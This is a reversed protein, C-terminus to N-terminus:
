EEPELTAPRQDTMATPALRARHGRRLGPAEGSKELAMAATVLAVHSFAQPFNGVLRKKGVDYQEALLGLDNRVALVSEFLAQADDHRGLLVLCDVLWLTCMLFSGEGGSLGDLARDTKYRHLFGDVLLDKEIAEITRRMREDTADIFGVLPLILLSADLDPCDYARMFRGLADDYGRTLVEGRIEARVARWRDLPGVRGFNEVMSIARDLAVWAMVKSHVFHRRGSRVEWIGEDPERWLDCVFEVISKELEWVEATAPNGAREASHLTDMVEGYVDLQLQDVAANGIRVPKSAEYGRLWDLEIETLRREGRVGYMIQLDEPDGAVARLLWDRWEAAEETYGHELLEELEFTADRLWCYRYDWNRVGGLDEPLSTTPAAVIGGTPSYTLAKLVLLSRVVEDRWRGRYTCRAAWRRWFNDTREIFRECDRALDLPRSHLHSPHYRAAFYISQGEQVEFSSAVTPGDVQLLVSGQLNLADPGGIAEIGEESARMWPVIEGYDFRPVYEMTMSVSGSGGHIVRVVVDRPKLTRPDAAVHGEELPLCDILTASGTSTHFTTELVMSDTRYSRDTTYDSSAPSIKWHGGIEPDLIAAFCASSDFRPLCLWDMSGDRSVLAASHTDGIFGYDEILM